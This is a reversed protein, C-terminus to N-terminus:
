RSRQERRAGQFDFIEGTALTLHCDSEYTHAWHTARGCYGGHATAVVEVAEDSCLATDRGPLADFDGDAAALDACASTRHPHGDGERGPCDLRVTDTVSDGAATTRTVTLWLYGDATPSSEASASASASATGALALVALAAAALAPTTKM